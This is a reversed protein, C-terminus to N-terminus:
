QESYTDVAGTLYWQCQCTVCYHQYQNIVHNCHPIMLCSVGLDLWTVNILWDASIINAVNRHTVCPAPNFTEFCHNIAILLKLQKIRAQSAILVGIFHVLRIHLCHFDLKSMDQFHKICLSESNLQQFKIIPTLPNRFTVNLFWQKQTCYILTKAIFWLGIGWGTCKIIPRQFSLGISSWWAFAWMWSIRRIEHFGASKMHIEHFRGSKLHFGASKMCIKYLNWSIRWIECMFDAPNRFVLQWSHYARHKIYKVRHIQCFWM